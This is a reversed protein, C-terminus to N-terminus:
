PQDVRVQYIYMNSPHPMLAINLISKARSRVHTCSTARYARLRPQDRMDNQASSSSSRSYIHWRSNIISKNQAAALPPFITICRILTLCRITYLLAHQQHLTTKRTDWSFNGIQKFAFASYVIFGGRKSLKAHGDTLIYILACAGHSNPSSRAASYASGWCIARPSSICTKRVSFTVSNRAISFLHLQLRQTLFTGLM